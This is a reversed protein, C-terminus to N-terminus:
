PSKPFTSASQYERNECSLDAVGLVDTACCQPITYLLGTPCVTDRTTLASPAAMSVAALALLAAYTKM